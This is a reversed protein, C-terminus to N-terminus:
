KNSFNLVNFVYLEQYKVRAPHTTSLILSTTVDHWKETPKNRTELCQTIKAYRAYQEGLLILDIIAQRSCLRCSSLAQCAELASTHM